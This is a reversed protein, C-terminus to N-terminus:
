KKCTKPDFQVRYRYLVQKGRDGVPRDRDAENAAFIAAEKAIVILQRNEPTDGNAFAAADLLDPTINGLVNSNQNDPVRDFAVMYVVVPAQATKPCPITPKGAPDLPYSQTLDKPDYIKIDPYKQRYELEKALAANVYGEGSKSGDSRNSSQASPSPNPSGNPQPSTTPQPNSNAPTTSSQPQTQQGGDNDTGPTPQPQPSAPPITSQPSPQNTKPQNKPAQSPKPTSQFSINPDFLPPAPQPQPTAKQGKVVAPPKVAPSPVTEKAPTRVPSSPITQPTTTIQPTRPPIPTSPQYVPPLTPQIVPTPAQPIRQLESPTLELVKVTGPEAQKGPKAPQILFPLSAAFIAHLVISGLIAIATPDLLIDLFNNRTPSQYM